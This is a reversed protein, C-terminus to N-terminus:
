RLLLFTIKHDTSTNKENYFCQIVYDLKSFYKDEISNVEDLTIFKGGNIMIISAKFKSILPIFSDLSNFSTEVLQFEKKDKCQNEIDAYGLGMLFRKPEMIQHIFLLAQNDLFDYVPKLKLSNIIKIEEEM